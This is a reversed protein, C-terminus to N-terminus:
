LYFFREFRIHTFPTPEVILGVKLPPNKALPPIEDVHFTNTSISSSLRVSQSFRESVKRAVAARGGIGKCNSPIINHAFGRTYCAPTVLSEVSAFVLCAMFGRNFRWLKSM